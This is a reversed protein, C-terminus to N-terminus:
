RLRHDVRREEVPHVEIQRPPLSRLELGLKERVIRLNEWGEDMRAGRSRKSACLHGEKELLPNENNFAYRLRRMDQNRLLALSGFAHYTTRRHQYRALGLVYRQVIEM